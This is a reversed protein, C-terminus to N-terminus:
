LVQAELWTIVDRVIPRQEANAAHAIHYTQDHTINDPAFRVLRGERLHDRVLIEPILGFAQGYLIATVAVLFDEVIMTCPFQEVDIGTQSTWNTWENNSFVQLRRSHESLYSFRDFISGPAQDALATPSCVPVLIGDVLPRSVVGDWGGRGFRISLDVEESSLDIVRHSTLIELQTGPLADDFDGLRSVLIQAAFSSVTSIRFVNSRPPRRSFRTFTQDLVRFAPTVTERVSRGEDTLVLGSPAREFLKTGIYDELAIV